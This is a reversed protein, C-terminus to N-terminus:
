PMKRLDEELVAGMCYAVALVVTILFVGRFVTSYTLMLILGLPILFIGLGFLLRKLHRM